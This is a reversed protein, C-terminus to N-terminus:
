LLSTITLMRVCFSIVFVSVMMYWVIQISSTSCDHHSTNSIVLSPVSICHTVSLTFAAVMFNVLLGQSLFCLSDSWQGTRNFMDVAAVSVTYTTYATNDAPRTILVSNDTTNLLEESSNSKTLYYSVCNHTMLLM